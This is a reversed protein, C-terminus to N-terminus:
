KDNKQKDERVLQSISAFAANIKIEQMGGGDEGFAKDLAKKGFTNKLLEMDDPNDLKATFIPKLAEEEAKKREGPCALCGNGGCWKCNEYDM